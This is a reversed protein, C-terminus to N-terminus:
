PGVPNCRGHVCTGDCAVGCAGCNLPDVDTHVPCGYSLSCVAYGDMCAMRQCYGNECMSVSHPIACDADTACEPHISPDETFPPKPSLALPCISPAEPCCWMAVGFENHADYSCGAPDPAGTSVYITVESSSCRSASGERLGAECAADCSRCIVPHHDDGATLQIPSGVCGNLAIAALTAFLPSTRVLREGAGSNLM